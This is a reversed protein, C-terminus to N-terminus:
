LIYQSVIGDCWTDKGFGLYCADPLTMKIEFGARKLYMIAARNYSPTIGYVSKVLPPGDVRKISKIQAFVQDKIFDFKRQFSKFICFHFQANYGIFDTFFFMGVLKSEDMMISYLIPGSKMYVHFKIWNDIDGGYFLHKYLDGNELAAWLSAHALKNKPNIAKISFVPHIM